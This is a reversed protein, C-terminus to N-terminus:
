TITLAGVNIDVAPGTMSIIAGKGNQIVIGLDNVSISAGTMTKILIGGTPGPIDSIMIGNQLPTQIAIGPILPPIMQGMMPVEAASGWYCGTWIPYDPDGQEFEIWVGAGILPVTFIGSQMGGVPLCPMAWSTPVFESVDPVMAQIRGMKLPDVNNIVTGRYKGYYRKPDNM